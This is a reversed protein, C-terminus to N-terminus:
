WARTEERTYAIDSCKLPLLTGAPKELTDLYCPPMGAYVLLSVFLNMQVENFGFDACVAAYLAAINMQINKKEKLIAEIKFAMKFYRGNDMDREHLFKVLHPVREDTSTIPRGYGFITKKSNIKEEIITNLSSNKHEQKRTELQKGISLYMSLCSVLPKAVFLEADCSAIGGVMALIPTTRASSALAAIRNPWIRIDAYSTSLWIYNLVELEKQQFERGTIGFLNLSFWDLSGLEHHLDKNKFISCESLFALGSSTPYHQHLQTLDNLSM